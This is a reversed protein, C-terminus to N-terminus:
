LWGPPLCHCSPCYMHQRLDFACGQHFLRTSELLPRLLVVNSSGSSPMEDSFKSFFLPLLSSHPSGLTTPFTHTLAARVSAQFVTANTFGCGRTLKRRQKMVHVGRVGVQERCMGRCLCGSDGANAISGHTQPQKQFAERVQAQAQAKAAAAGRRQRGQAVLAPCSSTHTSTSTTRAHASRSSAHFAPARM